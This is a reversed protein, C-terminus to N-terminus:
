QELGCVPNSDGPKLWPSSTLDCLTYEPIRHAADLDGIVRLIWGFVVHTIQESEALWEVILTPQLSRAYQPPAPTGRDGHNGLREPDFEVVDALCALKRGGRARDGGCEPGDFGTGDARGPCAADADDVADLHGGDLVDVPDGVVECGIPRLASGASGVPNPPHDDVSLGAEVRFEFDATTGALAVVVVAQQGGAHARDVGDRPDAFGLRSDNVGQM